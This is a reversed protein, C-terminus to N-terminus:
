NGHVSNRFDMQIGVVHQPSFTQIRVLRGGTRGLTRGSAVVLDAHPMALKSELKPSKNNLYVITRVGDDDADTHM